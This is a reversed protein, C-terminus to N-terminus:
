LVPDVPLDPDVPPDPVVIVGSVVVGGVTQATITSLKVSKSFTPAEYVRQVTELKNM